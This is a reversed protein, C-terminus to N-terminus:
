HPDIVEIFNELNNGIGYANAPFEATGGATTIINYAFTNSNPGLPNYLPLNAAQQNFADMLRDEFQCCGMGGPPHIPVHWAASGARESNYPSDNHPHGYKGLSGDPNLPPGYLELYVDKGHCAVRIYCHTPAAILLIISNKAGGRSSPIPDCYLEALLGTPDFFNVPNNIAYAYFNAGGSFKSPDENAFRGNTADYYRARYFHLGTESDFERSTYRFPNTISGTSASLNGFADYAYTAATTGSANTLSTISGLGDAAYYSATGSRFESLPQDVGPGQTYRALTSGASDLEVVIDAGDYVYNTTGLPGSKQIRRGFPDYRFTTTGVGPNIVQTLRNQFDWTFSRGQADSLTNGNADYTLVTALV